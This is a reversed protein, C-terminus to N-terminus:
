TDAITVVGSSKLTLNYTALAGHQGGIPLSTLIFDCTYQPNTPGSAATDNKYIVTFPVGAVWLDRLTHAVPVDGAGAAAATDEELVITLTHDQLGTGRLKGLNGFVSLDLEDKGLTIVASKCRASMDVTAITLSGNWLKGFVAM